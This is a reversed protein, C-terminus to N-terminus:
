VDHSCIVVSLRYYNNYIRCQPILFDELATSWGRDVSSADRSRGLRIWIGSGMAVLLSIATGVLVKIGHFHETIVNWPFAQKCMKMRPVIM